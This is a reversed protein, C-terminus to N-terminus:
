RSMMKNTNKTAQTEKFKESTHFKPKIKKKDFIPYNQDNQGGRTGTNKRNGNRDKISLLQMETLNSSTTRLKDLARKITRLKKAKKM